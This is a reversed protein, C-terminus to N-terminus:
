NCCQLVALSIMFKLHHMLLNLNAYHQSFFPEFFNCKKTNKTHRFISQQQSSRSGSVTSKLNSAPLMFSILSPWPAPSIHILNIRDM